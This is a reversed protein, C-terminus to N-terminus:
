EASIFWFPTTYIGTNEATPNRSRNTELKAFEDSVSIKKEESNRLLGAKRAKINELESIIFNETDESNEGDNTKLGVDNPNDLQKNAKNRKGDQFTTSALVEGTKAFWHGILWSKRTSEELKNTLAEHKNSDRDEMSEAKSHNSSHPNDNGKTTEATPQDDVDILSEKDRGVM